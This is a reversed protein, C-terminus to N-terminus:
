CYFHLIYGCDVPTQRTRLLVKRPFCFFQSRDALYFHICELNVCELTKPFIWAHSKLKFHEIVRKNSMASLNLSNSMTKYKCSEKEKNIKKKKRKKANKHGCSVFTLVLIYKPLM